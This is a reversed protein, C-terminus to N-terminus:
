AEANSNSPSLCQASVGVTGRQKAQRDAVTYKGSRKRECHDEQRVCLLRQLVTSGAQPDGEGPVVIGGRVPGM